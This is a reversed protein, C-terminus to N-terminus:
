EPDAAALRCAARWSRRHLGVAELAVAGRAWRGALCQARPRRAESSCAGPGPGRGRTAAACAGATCALCLAAQQRRQQARAGSCSQWERGGGAWPSRGQKSAQREQARASGRRTRARVAAGGTVHMAGGCGPAAPQWGRGPWRKGCARLAHLHVPDGGPRPAAHHHLRGPHEALCCHHHHHHHHHHPPPPPPVRHHSRLLDHDLPHHCQQYYHQQYQLHLHLHPSPLHPSFAHRALRPARLLWCGNSLSQPSHHHHHHHHLHCGCGASCDRGCPCRQWLPHPM